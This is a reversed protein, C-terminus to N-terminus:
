WVELEEVDNFPFDDETVIGKAIIYRIGEINGEGLFQKVRQRAEPLSARIELIQPTSNEPKILLTYM